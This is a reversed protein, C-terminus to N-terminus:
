LYMVYKKLVNIEKWKRKADDIEEEDDLDVEQDLVNTEETDIDEDSLSM